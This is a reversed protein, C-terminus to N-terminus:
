SKTATNTRALWRPLVIAGIALYLYFNFLRWVVAVASTLGVPLYDCNMAMFSLEAIGSGGPTSPVMIIMRLLCQRAFVALQDITGDSFTWILTNALAYRACWSIATAILIKFLVGIGKTKFEVSTYWIEEGLLRIQDRWRYLWKVESMAGFFNKAWQPKVFIAFGLLGGTLAVLIFGVWVYQGVGRLLHFVRNDGLDACTASLDFMHPGLLFFLLSFVTVFAINDLYSCLMVISAGKGFSIKEKRLIFLVLTIGGVSAPSISSGFEWLAIIEFCKFFSLKKDTLQWIRYIYALDRIVVTLLALLLGYILHMSLPVQALKSADIKSVVFVLYVSVAIGIAVPLLIRRFTFVSLPNQATSGPM